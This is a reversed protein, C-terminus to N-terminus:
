EGTPERGTIPSCCPTQRPKFEMFEVRTLDPDYLNLQVKGDRGMQKHSDPSPAWGRKELEAAISDMDPVGLAFHDQVGVQKPSADAPIHLMYEVWDTGDPVQLSQWDVTGDKMGGAWYPHFGLIDKYFRDEAAASRVIFGAHIIRGSVSGATKGGPAPSGQVFEVRNGEPDKVDFIREGDRLVTTRPPVAVGKSQLYMRMAEADSTRLAVHELVPGSGPHVEVSQRPDGYFRVGDAFEPSAVATWGLKQTFFARDAAMDQTRLAVHAVGTIAPRQPESAFGASAAIGFALALTFALRM